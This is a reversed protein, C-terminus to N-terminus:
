PWSHLPQKIYSKGTIHSNNRGTKINSVTSQHINYLKSLEYQTSTSHFIDLIQKNTLMIVKQKFIKNTLHSWTRGTKIDSITVRCVKYKIALEKYPRNSNFINMVSKNSLKYFNANQGFRKKNLGFDFAHKINESSTVWELNDIRNDIKIGNKHNIMPKNHPNPIFTLAILRHVLFFRRKKYVTSRIVVYGIKNIKQKLIFPTKRKISRIEFQNNIEYGILTPIPHWHMENNCIM